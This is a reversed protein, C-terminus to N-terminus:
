WIPKEGGFYMFPMFLETLSESKAWDIKSIFTGFSRMANKPDRVSFFTGVTAKNARNIKNLEPVLGEKLSEVFQIVEQILETEEPIDELAHIIVRELAGEETAPLELWMPVPYSVLKDAVVTDGASRGQTFICKAVDSGSELVLTCTRVSTSNNKAYHISVPKGNAQESTIRLLGEENDWTTLWIWDVETSQDETSITLIWDGAANIQLFQSGSLESVGSSKMSISITSIPDHTCSASFVLFLLM